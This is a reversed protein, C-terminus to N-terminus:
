SVSIANSLEPSTRSLQLDKKVGVPSVLAELYKTFVFDPPYNLFEPIM